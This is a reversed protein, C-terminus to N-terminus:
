RQRSRTKKKTTTGCRARSPIMSPGTWISTRSTSPQTRKCAWSGADGRRVCTTLLEVGLAQHSNGSPPIYRSTEPEAPSSPLSSDSALEMDDNDINIEEPASTPQSLNWSKAGARRDKALATQTLAARQMSGEPNRVIKLSKRRRRPSALGRLFAPEEDILEIELESESGGEEGDGDEEEEESEEKKANDSESEDEDEDKDLHLQGEIRPLSAGIQALVSQEIASRPPLLGVIQKGETTKLVM